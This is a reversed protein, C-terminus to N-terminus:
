HLALMDHFTLRNHLLRVAVGSLLWHSGVHVVHLLGSLIGHLLGSLIGHLLETLERHLLGHVSHLLWHTHLHWM